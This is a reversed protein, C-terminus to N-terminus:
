QAVVPRDVIVPAQTTPVYETAEADIQELQRTPVYEAAEAELQKFQAV